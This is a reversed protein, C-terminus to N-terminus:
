PELFCLAEPRYRHRNLGSEGRGAGAFRQQITREGARFVPQEAGYSTHLGDLILRRKARAKM